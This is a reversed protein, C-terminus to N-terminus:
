LGHSVTLSEQIWRRIEYGLYSGLTTERGSVFMVGSQGDLLSAQVLLAPKNTGPMGNVPIEAAMGPELSAEVQVYPQVTRLSSKLSHLSQNSRANSSLQRMEQGFAAASRDSFHSEAQIQSSSALFSDYRNDRAGTAQQRDLVSIPGGVTSAFAAHPLDFSARPHITALKFPIRRGGQGWVMVSVKPNKVSGLWQADAQAVLAIAQCRDIRRLSLLDDGPLVFQGLMNVYDNLLVVGDVSARVELSSCLYNLEEHRQKLGQITEQTIQWLEIDGEALYHDAQTQSSRLELKTQHLEKTLEPNVLTILLDGKRVQTGHYHHIKGVKGSAQARLTLLDQRIVMPARVTAPAPLMLVVTMIMFIAATMMAFQTRNLSEALQRCFLMRILKWLPIGIWALSALFVLMLGIGPFLNAATIGLGVCVLFQWLFASLGYCIVLGWRTLSTQEPAQFRTGFFITKFFSKMSQRGHTYLNPMDLLDTVIHYGDLRMLPNLNFFLTNISGALILNSAHYQLPGPKAACWVIAACSAIFVEALMGAAATLMRQWKYTFRWSSTVDVYPLPILLLLMVGFSPVRGGYRKCTVGHATEHLGKMLFWALCLWLADNASFSTLRDQHFDRWRILLQLAGVVCVALLVVAFVWGPVLRTWRHLLTFLRDPNFLPIRWAIPNLYSLLIHQQANERARSTARQSHSVFSEALGADIILKTINTAQHEDITYCGPLSALDSQAQDLTRKGDLLSLFAYESLSVRFYQGRSDDEIVYWDWGGRRHLSFRLDTRLRIKAHGLEWTQLDAPM